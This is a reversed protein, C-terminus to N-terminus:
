EEVNIYTFRNVVYYASPQSISFDRGLQATNRVLHSDYLRRMEIVQEKTLKARAAKTGECDGTRLGM